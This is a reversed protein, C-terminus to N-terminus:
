RPSADFYRVQNVVFPIGAFATFGLVAFLWVRAWYLLYSREDNNRTNRDAADIIHRRFQNEFQEAVEEEGGAVVKAFELFEERSKELDQLLPLYMYKQRHYARALQMLCGFLSVIAAILFPAFMWTLVGDRYTFSRAMLAILSGLGGLLGVPLNLSANLQEKRQLEYDYRNRLFEFDLPKM